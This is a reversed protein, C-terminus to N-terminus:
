VGAAPRQNEQSNQQLDLDVAEKHDYYYSLADYGQALTLHSFEIVLEEPAIGQRLVYNVVSRVPFKTGKIVPSGGCYDAHSVVYPHDIKEAPETM